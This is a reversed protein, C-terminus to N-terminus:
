AKSERIAPKQSLCNEIKERGPTLGKVSRQREVRLWTLCSQRQASSGPSHLWRPATFRDSPISILKPVTKVKGAGKKLLWKHGLTLLESLPERDCLCVSTIHCAGLYCVNFNLSQAPFNIILNGSNGMDLVNQGPLRWLSLKVKVTPSSCLATNM